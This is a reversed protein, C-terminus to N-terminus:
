SLQSRRILAHQPAATPPKRNSENCLSDYWLERETAQASGQMEFRHIM